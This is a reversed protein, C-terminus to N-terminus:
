PLEEVVESNRWSVSPTQLVDISALLSVEILSM